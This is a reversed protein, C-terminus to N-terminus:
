YTHSACLGSLVVCPLHQNCVEVKEHIDDFIIGELLLDENFTETSNACNMLARSIIKVDGENHNGVGVTFRSPPLLVDLCLWPWDDLTDVCRCLPTACACINKDGKLGSEVLIRSPPWIARRTKSSTSVRACPGTWSCKARCSGIIGWHEMGYQRTCGGCSFGTTSTQSLCQM